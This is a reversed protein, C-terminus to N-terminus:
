IFRFMARTKFSIISTPSDLIPSPIAIKWFLNKGEWATFRWHLWQIYSSFLILHIYGKDKHLPVKHPYKLSHKLRSELAVQPM